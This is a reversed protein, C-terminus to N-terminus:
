SCGCGNPYVEEYNKHFIKVPGYWMNPQLWCKKKIRRDFPFGKSRKDTSWKDMCSCQEVESSIIVFLEFEQGSEKGKPLVLSNPILNSAYINEPTFPGNNKDFFSFDSSKRVIVNSGKKLEYKFEDLQFFYKRTKELNIPHKNCRNGPGMFIRVVSTQPECSATVNITVTFPEHCLRKQLAKIVFNRGGNQSHHCVPCTDSSNSVTSSEVDIANTIDAAYKYFYTTLDSVYVSNVAVGEYSIDESTYSPLNDKFNDSFSDMRYMVQWFFSDRLQTQPHMLINPYDVQRLPGRGNLSALVDYLTNQYRYYGQNLSDPSGQSIYGLFNIDEPSKLEVPTGDLKVAFGGDGISRLRSEDDYMRDINFLNKKKYFKWGDEHSVYANGHRNVLSEHHGRQIKKRWTFQKIPEFDNTLRELNCRAVLQHLEYLWIEGRRTREKENIVSLWFPNFIHSEFSYENLGMDKYFYSMKDDKNWYNDPCPPESEIVVQYVGNVEKQNAFGHLKALEGAHIQENSVFYRPTTRYFAQLKVGELIDMRQGFAVYATYVFLGTNLHFKAWNLTNYFTKWNKACYFLNYLAIAQERHELIYISFQEDFGILGCYYVALFEKVAIVNSYEDLHDEIKYSNAWALQKPQIDKQSPRIFLEDWAKQKEEATPNECGRTSQETATGGHPTNKVTAIGSSPAKQAKVTEKIPTKGTSGLLPIGLMPDSLVFSGAACLLVQIFVKM